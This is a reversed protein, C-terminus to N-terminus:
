VAVARGASCGRAANHVDVHDLGVAALLRAIATQGWWGRASLVLRWPRVVACGIASTMAIRLGSTGGLSRQRQPSLGAPTCLRCFGFAQVVCLVDLASRRQM